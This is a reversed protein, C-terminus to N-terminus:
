SLQGKIYTLRFSTIYLYVGSFVSLAILFAVPLVFLDPSVPLMLYVLRLAILFPGSFSAVYPVCSSRCDSFTRLFQCCLTCLVFPLWFLDPSVPLMPYVLRVAIPFPGSFSAVYRVCSSPCDFFTRLFQCCLTCLVFPLLFPGSFSAVYPVCSSRCYLLDPSVPLMPYVLRLAIFFTRLFQCCLTCLVFPLWFLDPSVPLMPYVPRLAILFSGSFSAVYRVCSSPCDFFTRLFQCCLTCLVFPLLFPGSFSAVYPVCSSPCDFFTRLFQCCLTCLVFPLWFLDPSVPLMPYVLRLVILFSGAFSAVYPVCSSPCDCFIRLFQCCLTCLVFHLLFPGSFSAVYPVCSSPCDFFTRLFQCCLTCLVFPLWFLDPSVPLMAYVLRLAILFPGSFSAVYPVCSSRCYFLDPSVPLMPYVLRLAILFPGSFSAVYRVCSSPCDFFIRLFQCCLTCLVFPLWFLDPSVPLMPYVLRLAILFSGAFSAVYPVCSSPCDFFIRRFQCCLTCLVFPLWLLDPSVPLMPYVLRLAIVFSGSFSAVYPVCSSPCDCFIRLFQCCLTCLVFPLWLLDPSVPLMPYVLRLAIVFSRSFSAVYPVCSSPCDCFIRLFQCCLTCLVFPLWLLDPSVPLMPYVLRLAIVFSGSFSAVYPVCSSPCDCFIRLFQCCLTCLVFPLWLLDPSVPLMPYVLRLAWLLDPSVPLMPYVLRLAIVFSGSFSAVYPVCSSPCDCFIRLFQCCLTCLVFPLWLLDPSVPLMPYVLRLAIVFSGSFSAVYPVCSSPCDCFIRLFQCCLTCLVFPLWLLDPSVPLMPFVLFIFCFCLVIHTPCWQVSVFVFWTFIVHTRRCVVPPLTSSFMTEIRFDNLSKMIKIDPHKKANTGHITSKSYTEKKNIVGKCTVAIFTWIKVSWKYKSVVNKVPHMYLLM